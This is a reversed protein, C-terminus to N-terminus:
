REGRGTERERRERSEREREERGKKKKIEEKDKQCQNEELIDVAILMGNKKVHVQVPAVKQSSESDVKKLDALCKQKNEVIKALAYKDWFSQGSSVSPLYHNM